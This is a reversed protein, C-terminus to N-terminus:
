SRFIARLNKKSINVKYERKLEEIWAKELLDQYDSIVYGKAEKLSKQGGPLIEEIKKFTTIKLSNNIQPASVVGEELKLGKLTEAGEEVVEQTYMVLEKDSNFKEIMGKPDLAKASIFYSHLEDPNNSRISYNTIRARTKWIYDKAHAAYFQALGASDVAAKDWVENKTIEFLLIGEEYERMLNKFDEYREELHEEAYNIARDAVFDEYLEDVVAEIRKNGKARLRIKSNQQAYEALDKLGYRKDEYSFLVINSYAPQSWSYEFFSNDLSDIFNKLFERREKFKAEKQLEKVVIARTRDFRVGQQMQARVKEKIAERNAPERKSIRKIIHWGKSTEVPPSIDGDASLAFAQDEFSKEYESIGFFGLYGGKTNTSRDESVRRAAEEFSIKGDIIDQRWNAIRDQVGALPFGNSEKELLIHAVEIMGRGHRRDVVKLIHYGLDTKIPESIDGVPTSYAADELAIFADPLAATIYGIDGGLKSSNRDHSYRQAAEEFSLGDQIEQLIEQIRLKAKQDREIDINRPASILIHHLGIDYLKRNYTKDVIRQIVERDIVYSDALQKRYGALEEKYAETDAYGLDRAKRVKLKFNIYLDLYEEVSSRSYDAKDRNNKEYIYQFESQYVPVGNIDFLVKSDPSQAFVQAVLFWLIVMSYMATYSPRAIYPIPRNFSYTITM